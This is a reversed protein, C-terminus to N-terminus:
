QPPNLQTQSTFNVITSGSTRHKTMLGPSSEPARGGKQGRRRTTFTPPLNATGPRSSLTLISAILQLHHWTGSEHHLPKRLRFRREILGSKSLSLPQRVAAKLLVSHDRTDMPIQPFNFPTNFEVCLRARTGVPPATAVCAHVPGDRRWFFVDRVKGVRSCVEERWTKCAGEFSVWIL